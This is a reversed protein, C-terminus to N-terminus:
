HNASKFRLVFGCLLFKLTFLLISRTPRAVHGAFGGPYRDLAAPAASICLHFLLGPHSATESGGRVSSKRWSRGSREM